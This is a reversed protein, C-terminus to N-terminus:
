TRGACLIWALISGWASFWAFRSGYILVLYNEARVCFPLRNQGGYLFLDHEIGVSFGLSNCGACSFWTLKSVMVSVFNIKIGLRIDLPNRHGSM